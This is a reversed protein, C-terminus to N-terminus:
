LDATLLLDRLATPDINGGTLLLVVAGPDWSSRYEDLAAFAAAGAGEAVQGTTQLVRVIGRRLAAESVLCVEDVLQSIVSFALDGPVSSELGGAFTHSPASTLRGVAFSDHVAPAAESQVGILRIRPLVLRAVLATAAILNGGGVPVVIVSADPLDEFVEWAVSAAGALLCPDEGDQLYVDGRDAGLARAHECAEALNRGARVLEAGHEVVADAKVDPTDWPVVVTVDIGLRAGAWSVGLGHNGTSATVVRRRVASPPLRSLAYLAGRTKFTRTPGHNEYKVFVRQKGKSLRSCPYLATRPHNLALWDRAAEFESTPPINSDMLAPARQM